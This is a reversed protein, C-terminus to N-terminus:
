GKFIRADPTRKWSREMGPDMRVARKEEDCSEGSLTVFILPNAVKFCVCCPYSVLLFLLWPTDSNSPSIEMSSGSSTMLLTISLLVLNSVRAIYSPCDPFIDCSRRVLRLCPFGQKGPVSDIKPRLCDHLSGSPIADNRRIPYDGLRRVCHIAM